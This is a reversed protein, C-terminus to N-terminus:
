NRKGLRELSIRAEAQLDVEPAGDILSQLVQRAAPTGVQELILMVRRVRIREQELSLGGTLKALMQEVRRQVELTPPNALMEKFRGEMWRGYRELEKTAKNRVDFKDANLDVFMRDIRKPDILYLQKGLLPISAHSQAAFAWMARHGEAPNLSALDRWASEFADAVVPPLANAGSIQGTVDWALVSTDSSASYAVRGDATLAAGHVPGQHGPLVAIMLGSFVEWLRVTKDFSGSALIRGDASFAVAYPVSTHGELTRIEKGKQYDVLRIAGDYCAVALTMGDSAFALAAVAPLLSGANAGEKTDLVRMEKGATVNWLAIKGLGGIGLVDGNTSFAVAQAGGPTALRTQQVIKKQQWDWLDVAGSRYSAAFLTGRPAFAISLVQDDQKGPFQFSETSTEPNWLRLPDNKSGSALLKGDPSYALVIDDQHKSEWARLPAATKCDSVTITGTATVTAITKGDPALALHALGAQIGPGALREKGTLADFVRITHNAGGCAVVQGDKSLVLADADGPHRPISRLEKRGDIEWLRITGDAGSSALRKITASRSTALAAVGGRHGPLPALAKGDAANWLRIQNEDGASAITKDDIFGVSTVSTGADLQHLMKKQVTSWIRVTRDASGSVLYISDLDTSFALGTVKDTHGKFEALKNVTKIGTEWLIITGDQSASAILINDTSVALATIAAQHGTLQADEKGSLLNWVRVTKLKGGTLIQGAGKTFVAAEIWPEPLQLHEKGSAADWIRVPDNYGGGAIFRGDQSMALCQIPSGHRWRATGFRQVARPPLPDAAAGDGAGPPPAQGDTPSGTLAAFLGALLLYAWRRERLRDGM